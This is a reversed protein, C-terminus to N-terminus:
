PGLYNDIKEKYQLITSYNNLIWEKFKEFTVTKNTQQIISLMNNPSSITELDRWREYKCVDCYYLFYIEKKINCDDSDLNCFFVAKDFTEAIKLLNEWEEVRFTSVDMSFHNQVIVYM